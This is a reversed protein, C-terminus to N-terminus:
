EYRLAEAPKLRSAQLAPYITSFLSVLVAVTVILIIDPWFVIRVPLYEIYYIDQPLKIFQYKKLLLCLTIGTLSGIGVGSLGILLGELTFVNKIANKNLGITM